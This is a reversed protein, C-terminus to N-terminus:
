GLHSGQREQCSLLAICIHLPNVNASRTHKLNGKTTQQALDQGTGAINVDSIQPVVRALLPIAEPQLMLAILIVKKNIHINKIYM